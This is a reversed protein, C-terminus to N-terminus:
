GQIKGAYRAGKGRPPAKKYGSARMKLVYELYGTVGLEESVANKRYRDYSPIAISYISEKNTLDYKKGDSIITNAGYIIDRRDYYKGNIPPFTGICRGHLFLVTYEM